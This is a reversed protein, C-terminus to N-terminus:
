FLAFLVSNSGAIISGSYILKPSPSSFLAPRPSSIASSKSMAFKSSLNPELFGRVDIVTFLLGARLSELELLGSGLNSTLVPSALLFM